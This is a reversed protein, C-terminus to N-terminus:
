RPRRRSTRARVLVGAVGSGVLLLTMPEPIPAQDEFVYSVEPFRWLGAENVLRLSATGRGVLGIQFLQSGGGSPFGAVQGDFVFPATLFVTRVEPDPPLAPVVVNSGHFSLQGNLQLWTEFNSQTAYTTGNVVAIQAQGLNGTTGGGMVASLNVITGPVCGSFCTQQPSEPVSFFGSFLHLGEGQLRLFPPDDWAVIVQGSTVALTDARAPQAAAIGILVGTMLLVQFRATMPVGMGVTVHLQPVQVADPGASDLISDLSRRPARGHLIPGDTTGTTM